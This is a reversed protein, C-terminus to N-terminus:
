DHFGLVDIDITGKMGRLYNRASSHLWHEPADVWGRRVPNSHIYEVKQRLMTDGVIIQPHVGEQWVQHRSERKHSKCYFEFQNLLWDRGNARASRILERATHRKFSQVVESLNPAEAVLHLHNEMIVYAYLRLGKERRSYTLADALIDHDAKYILAPIWEIVTCTIFYIGESDV